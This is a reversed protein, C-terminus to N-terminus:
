YGDLARRALTRRTCVILILMLLSGSVVAHFVKVRVASYRMAPFWAKGKAHKPVWRPVRRRRGANADM